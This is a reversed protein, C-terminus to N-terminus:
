PGEDLAIEDGWFAIGGFGVFDMVKVLNSLGGGALEGDWTAHLTVSESMWEPDSYLTTHDFTGMLEPTLEVELSAREVTSATLTAARREAFEGAETFFDIEVDVLMRDDCTVEPGLSEDVYDPNPESDIWSVQGGEYRLEVTVPFSKSRWQDSLSLPEDAFQLTSTRPGLKGMLLQEASFGGPTQEAPAHVTEVEICPEAETAGTTAGTTEDPETPNGASTTSTGTASPDDPESTGGSTTGPSESGTSPDDGGTSGVDPNDAIKNDILCGPASLLTLLPLTSLSLRTFFDM